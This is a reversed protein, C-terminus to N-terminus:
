ANARLRYYYIEGVALAQSDPLIFSVRTTNESYHAPYNSYSIYTINRYVDTFASDNAIQLWYSTANGIRTWNFLPTTDAYTTANAQGAIELFRIDSPDESLNELGLTEYFNASWARGNAYPGAWGEGEYILVLDNGEFIVSYDSVGGLDWEGATGNLFVPNHEYKNWTICDTSTAIGMQEQSWDGPLDGDYHQGSYLMIFNGDHKLLVPYEFYAEDWEGDCQPEMVPNYASDTWTTLDSSTAYGVSYHAIPSCANSSSSRGAYLMKFDNDDPDYIVSCGLLGAYVSHWAQGTNSIAQGAYSWSGEITSSTYIDIDDDGMFMYYKGDSHKYATGNSYHVISNIWYGTIGLSTEGTFSGNATNSSLRYLTRPSGAYHHFIYYKDTESCYLLTPAGRSNSTIPNGPDKTFTVIDDGVVILMTALILVISILLTGSIIYLKKM